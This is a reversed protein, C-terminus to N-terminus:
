PLDELRVWDSDPSSETCTKGRKCVFFQIVPHIEWASADRQEQLSVGRGQKPTSVRIYGFFKKM